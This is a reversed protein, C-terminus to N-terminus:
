EFRDGILQKIALRDEIYMVDDSESDKFWDSKLKGRKILHCAQIAHEGITGLINHGDHKCRTDLEWEWLNSTGHLYKIFYDRSWISWVASKRYDAIQSLEVVKFSDYDKYITYPKSNVHGDLAIRSIDDTEMYKCLASFIHLNIKRIPFFDDCTFIFNSDDISNFFNILDLNVHNPGKDEGLSIFEFGEDLEFDLNKYGLIKVSLPFTHDPWYKNICYQMGKILWNTRDSTLIYITM